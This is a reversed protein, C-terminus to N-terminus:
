ENTQFLWNDAETCSKQDETPCPRQIRKSLELFFELVCSDTYKGVRRSRKRQLNASDAAENEIKDRNKAVKSLSGLSVNYKEALKRYSIKADMDHLVDLKEGITLEQHKAGASTSSARKQKSISM